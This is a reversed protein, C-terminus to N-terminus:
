NVCICIVSSQKPIIKANRKRKSFLNHEGCFLLQQLLNCTNGERQKANPLCTHLIRCCSTEKLSCLKNLLLFFLNLFLERGNYHWLYVNSVPNPIKQGLKKSRTTSNTVTNAIFAQL